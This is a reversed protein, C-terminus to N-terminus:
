EINQIQERMQEIRVKLDMAIGTLQTSVSKSGVTNAERNLEQMLFDLRKGQTGGTELLRRAEFIHTNLRSIEEEIDIRQIFVAMEQRIREEEGKGLVELLRAKLKEQWASIIQPLLPRAGNIIEQIGDLHELLIKKLKEGERYRSEQLQILAGSLAELAATQIQQANIQQEALVQPWRLIDAIGLPKLEGDLDLLHRNLDLLSYVIGMDPEIKHTQDPSPRFSLRCDIKGRHLVSCIKERASPEIMRLIDDIRFNIELYRHNVSRLEVSFSGASTERSTAAFGTMSCIM